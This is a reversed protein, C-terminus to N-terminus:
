LLEVPYQIMKELHCLGTLKIKGLLQIILNKM